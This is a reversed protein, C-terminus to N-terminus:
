TISQGCCIRLKLVCCFCCENYRCYVITKNFQLHTGKDGKVVLGKSVKFCGCIMTMTWIGSGKIM